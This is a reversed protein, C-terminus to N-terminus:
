GNLGFTRGVQDNTSVIADYLVDYVLPLYLGTVGLAVFVRIAFGITLVNIQAITRSIVGM